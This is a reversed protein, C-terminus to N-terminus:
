RKRKGLISTEPLLVYQKGEITLGLPNVRGSVQYIVDGVQIRPEVVKGNIDVAGPGVARVISLQTDEATMGDPIVLGGPTKGPKIEELLVNNGYPVFNVDSEM